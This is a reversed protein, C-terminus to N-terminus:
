PEPKHEMVPTWEDWATGSKTQHEERIVAKPYDARAAKLTKYTPLPHTRTVPRFRRITKAM